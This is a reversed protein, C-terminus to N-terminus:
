GINRTRPWGKVAQTAASAEALPSRAPRFGPSRPDPRTASAARPRDAQGRAALLWVTPAIPGSGARAEPSRAHGFDMAEPVPSPEDAADISGGLYDGALIDVRLAEVFARCSPWRRGPEASLARAVSPREIAPIMTLDLPGEIWPFARPAREVAGVPTPPRGGRLHCYAVALSYQDTERARWGARCEPALYAAALAQLGDVGIGPCVPGLKAVGGALAITWPAFRLAIPSAASWEAVADLGRAVDALLDVLLDRAIGRGGISRADVYHAWVSCEVRETAVVLATAGRWVTLVRLLNPHDQNPFVVSAFPEGTEAKPIIWFTVARGDAARGSRVEVDGWAFGGQAAGIVPDLSARPTSRDAFPERDRNRPATFAM